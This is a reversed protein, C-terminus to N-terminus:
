YIIVIEIKHSSSYEDKKYDEAFSAQLTRHDSQYVYICSALKLECFSSTEKRPLSSLKVDTETTEMM